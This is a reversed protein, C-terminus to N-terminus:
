DKREKVVWERWADFLTRDVAALASRPLLENIFVTEGQLTCAFGGARSFIFHGAAYDWINSRGHLYIHGRGAALWCWDLAVSGFSRQSSYPSRNVLDTRLPKPLRKFDIIAISKNLKLGSEQLQLPVNNLCARGPSGATFCEDRVPDYVLGMVVKAEHILSLSVSFYPIGATYNNTGDLPDLCWVPKGSHLAQEQTSQSMEEGLLVSGPLLELLAQELYDQMLHDVDTIVSGDAKYGREIQCFSPMMLKSCARKVLHQCPKILDETNLTMLKKTNSKERNFKKFSINIISSYSLYRTFSFM